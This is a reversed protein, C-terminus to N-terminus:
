CYTKNGKLIEVYEDNEFFGDKLEFVEYNNQGGERWSGNENLIDAADQAKTEEEYVGVVNSSVGCEICGINMLLWRM